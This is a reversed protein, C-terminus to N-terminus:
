LRCRLRRAQRTRGLLSLICIFLDLTLARRFEASPGPSLGFTGGACQSHFLCRQVLDSCSPDRSLRTKPSGETTSPAPLTPVYQPQKAVPAALASGLLTLAGLAVNILSLRMILSSPLPPSLPPTHHHLADRLDVLVTPSKQRRTSSGLGRGWGGSERAKFYCM